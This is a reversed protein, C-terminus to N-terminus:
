AWSNVLRQEDSLISFSAPATALACTSKFGCWTSAASNAKLEGSELPASKASSTPNPFVM